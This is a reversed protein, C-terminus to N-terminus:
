LAHIVVRGNIETRVNVVCITVILYFLYDRAGDRKVVVPAIWLGFDNITKKNFCVILYKIHNKQGTAFVEAGGYLVPSIEAIINGEINQVM